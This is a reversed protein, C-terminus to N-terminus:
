CRGRRVRPPRQARRGDRHRSSRASRCRESRARPSAAAASVTLGTINSSPPLFASIANASASGSSTAPPTMPPMFKVQHPWDQPEVLRAKKCSAIWSLTISLTRSRSRASGAPCESRDRVVMPAIMEFVCNSRTIPKISVAFPSPARRTVPPAGPSGASALPKKMSGVTKASTCCVIRM